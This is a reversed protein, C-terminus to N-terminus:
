AAPELSALAADLREVLAAAQRRLVRLKTAGGTGKGDDSASEAPAEGPKLGAFYEWPVRVGHEEAIAQSRQIADEIEKQRQALVEDSQVNLARCVAAHTTLGRQLLEGHAQAEKLKDIWPFTPRIWGGGHKGEVDEIKGDEIMAALWWRFLPEYFGGEILDQWYLFTAFAQELVARTQSYNSRTWDLLTLEVPLGLPLGMLRAFTLVVQPFDPGPAATRDIGSIKEGKRAHFIIGTGVDTIRTALDGEDAEADSSPDDRADSSLQSGDEETEIAVAFRALLQRALAESDCVDAIRHLMSFASQLPAVARYESPRTLHALYLVEESKYLKGDKAAVAGRKYPALHFGEVVGLNDKQIGDANGDFDKASQTPAVLQEGEFLQVRLALENGKELELPVAIAEGMSLLELAVMGGLQKGTLLGRVDVKGAWWDEWLKEVKGDWEKDGSLCQRRFGGGADHIYNKARGVMGAFIGNDRAFERAQAQIKLRHTQQHAGGSAASPSRGDKSAQRASRYGVLGFPTYRSRGGEQEIERRARRARRARARHRLSGVPRSM